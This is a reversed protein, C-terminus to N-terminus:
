FILREAQFRSVSYQVLPGENIRSHLVHHVAFLEDDDSAAQRPGGCSLGKPRFAVGPADGKQCCLVMHRIDARRERLFVQEALFTLVASLHVGLVPVRFVIDIKPPARLGAGDLRGGM